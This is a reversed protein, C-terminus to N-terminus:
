DGNTTGGPCLNAVATRAAQDVWRDEHGVLRKIQPMAEVCGLEDLNDIIHQLVIGDQEHQLRELLLARATHPHNRSLYDLVSGVVYPSPHDIKQMIREKVEDFGLVSLTRIAQAVVMPRGDRLLSLLKNAIELRCSVAAHNPTFALGTLAARVQDYTTTPIVNLLFRVGDFGGRQVIAAAVECLLLFTEDESQQHGASNRSLFMETLKEYSVTNLSPYNM